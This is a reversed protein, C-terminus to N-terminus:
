RRPTKSGRRPAAKQDDDQNAVPGDDAEAEAGPAGAPAPRDLDGQQSPAAPQEGPKVDLWAPHRPPYVHKM